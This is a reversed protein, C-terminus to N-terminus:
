DVMEELNISKIKGQILLEFAKKRDVTNLELDNENDRVYNEPCGNFHFVRSNEFDYWLMDDVIIKGCKIYGCLLEKPQAM